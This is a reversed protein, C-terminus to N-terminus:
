VRLDKRTVHLVVIKTPHNFPAPDIPPSSVITQPYGTIDEPIKIIKEFDLYDSTCLEQIENFFKEGSLYLSNNVVVLKGGHAILPRVKNILRITDKELEIKGTTTDSFFPPDLIVCDFLKDKQRMDGIVKFFDGTIYKCNATKLRNLNWSQKALDLFTSNLDTQVVLSAQGAGAAVGLSGTYAFTNLVRKGKMNNYLWLRLLRTDIYFSADQNMQLELAYKVSNEEISEPLARGVILQGNKINNDLSLREKLLITYVDPMNVSIWDTINEIITKFKGPQEHNMIVITSDYRDVVLGPTGEYFGNFLRYAQTAIEWPIRFSFSKIITNISNDLREM